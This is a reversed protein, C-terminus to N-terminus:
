RVLLGTLVHVLLEHIEESPVHSGIGSLVLRDDVVGARTAVTVEVPHLTLLSVRRLLRSLFGLEDVASVRVVLYGDERRSVEVSALRLPAPERSRPPEAALAVLDVEEPAVASGTVDVELQADWIGTTRRVAHGTVVSIGIDALGTCLHALWHPHEFRGSLEWRLGHPSV